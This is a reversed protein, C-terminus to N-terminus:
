AVQHEWASPLILLLFFATETKAYFATQAAQRPEALGQHSNGKPFFLLLPRLWPYEEAMWVAYYDFLGFSLEFESSLGNASRSKQLYDLARRSSVTAQRWDRRKAHLRARFGYAAAL